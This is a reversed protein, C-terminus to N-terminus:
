KFLSKVKEWKECASERKELQSNLLISAFSFGGLILIVKMREPGTGQLIGISYIACAWLVANGIILWPLRERWKKEREQPFYSSRLILSFADRGSETLYYRDGEQRLLPRLIRLYYSLIPTDNIGANIGIESFTCGGVEGLCRVVKRRKEHSLARFIEEESM